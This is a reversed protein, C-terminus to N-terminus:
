CVEKRSYPSLYAFKIRLFGYHFIHPVNYREQVKQVQDKAKHQSLGLWSSIFFTNTNNLLCCIFTIM